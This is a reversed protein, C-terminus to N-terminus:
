LVGDPSTADLVALLEAAVARLAPGREPDGVADFSRATLRASIEQVAGAVDMLLEVAPAATTITEPM